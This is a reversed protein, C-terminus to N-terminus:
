VLTARHAVKLLASRILPRWQLMLDHHHANSGHVQVIAVTWRCQLITRLSFYRSLVFIHLLMHLSSYEFVAGPLYVSVFM